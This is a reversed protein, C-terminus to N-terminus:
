IFAARFGDIPTISSTTYLALLQGLRQKSLEAVICHSVKASLKVASARLLPSGPSKNKTDNKSSSKMVVTSVPLSSFYCDFVAFLPQFIGGGGRGVLIDAAQAAPIWSGPMRRSGCIKKFYKYCSEHLSPAQSLSGISSGTQPLAPASVTSRRVLWATRRFGRGLSAGSSCAPSTIPHSNVGGDGVGERM